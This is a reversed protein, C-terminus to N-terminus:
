TVTLTGFMTTPHVDCQYFYVGKPLTVTLTDTAPGVQLQTMGMDEGTIDTGKFIHINHPQGPDKNELVITIKGAPATLSTKDFLLNQAILTIKTGTDGGTTATAQTTAEPSAAATAAPTAATTPVATAGAPATPPVPPETAPGLSSPTLMFTVVPTPDTSRGAPNCAAAGLLVIASLAFAAVVMLRTGTM